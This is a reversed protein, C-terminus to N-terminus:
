RQRREEREEREIEAEFEHMNERAKGLLFVEVSIEEELDTDSMFSRVARGTAQEVVSKFQDGVIQQFRRRVEQIGEADDRDILTREARTFTEEIVVVVVGQTIEVSVAGPPHGYYEDHLQAMREGIELHKSEDM